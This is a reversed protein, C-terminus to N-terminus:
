FLYDKIHDRREKARLWAIALVENEEVENDNEENEYAIVVGDQLEILINHLVMSAEIVRAMQETATRGEIGKQNLCSKFIRFRGKLIGITKEVVIRTRSHLYNYLREDAPM